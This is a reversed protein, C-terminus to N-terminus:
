SIITANLSNVHLPEWGPSTSELMVLVELTFLGCLLACGLVELTLLGWLLYVVSSIIFTDTMPISSSAIAYNYLSDDFHKWSDHTAQEQFLPGITDSDDNIYDQRNYNYLIVICPVNVFCGRNTAKGPLLTFSMGRGGSKHGFSDVAGLLPYSTSVGNRCLWPLFISLTSPSPFQRKLAKDLWSVPVWSCWRSSRFAIAFKSRFFTLINLGKCAPILRVRKGSWRCFM